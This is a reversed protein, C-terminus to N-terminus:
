IDKSEKEEDRKGYESWIGWIAYYLMLVCGIPCVAYVFLRSIETAPMVWFRIKWAVISGYYLLIAIAFFILIQQLVIFPGKAKGRIKETLFNLVYHAKERIAMAAGIFTLWVLLIQAVEDAWSLSANLAFRFFVNVAVIMAMLGLTLALFGDVIKDIIRKM